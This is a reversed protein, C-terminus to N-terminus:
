QTEKTVIREKIPYALENLSELKDAFIKPNEGPQQKCNIFRMQYEEQSLEIAFRSKIKEKIDNYYLIKGINTRKVRGYFELARGNLKSVLM